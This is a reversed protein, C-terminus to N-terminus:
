TREIWTAIAARRDERTAWPGQNLMNEQLLSFLSEMAVNDGAAADRGLSGTLRRDAPM